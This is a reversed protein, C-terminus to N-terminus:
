KAVPVMPDPPHWRGHGDLVLRTYITNEPPTCAELRLRREETLKRARTHTHISESRDFITRVFVRNLLFISIPPLPIKKFSVRFSTTEFPRTFTISVNNLVKKRVFSFVCFLFFVHPDIKLAAAVAVGGVCGRFIIPPAVCNWSYYRRLNMTFLIRYVFCVSSADGGFKLCRSASIEIISDGEGRAIDFIYLRTSIYTHM